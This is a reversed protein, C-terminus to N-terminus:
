AADIGDWLGAYSVRQLPTAKGEDTGTGGADDTSPAVARAGQFRVRLAYRGNSVTYGAPEFALVHGASTFQKLVEPPEPAAKATEALLCFVLLVAVIAASFRQIMM